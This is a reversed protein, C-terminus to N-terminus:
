PTCGRWPQDVLGHPVRYAAEQLVASETTTTIGGGFAVGEGVAGDFGGGGDTVQMRVFTITALDAIKGLASRAGIIDSRELADLVSAAASVNGGDRLDLIRNEHLVNSTQVDGSLGLKMVGKTLEENAADKAFSLGPNLAGDEYWELREPRGASDSVIRVSLLADGSLSGGVVLASLSANFSPNLTLETTLEHTRLDTERGAGVIASVGGGIALPGRSLSASLEVDASVDSYGAIQAPAISPPPGSFPLLSDGALLIDQLHASLEGLSPYRYRAGHTYSLVGSLDVDSAVKRDNEETTGSATGPNADAGALSFRDGWVGEAGGGIGQRVQADWSGDSSRGVEVEASEGLRISFVTAHAEFGMSRSPTPCDPEPQDSATAVQGVWVNGSGDLGALFASTAVVSALDPPTVLSALAHWSRDAGWAWQQWTGSSTGVLVPQDHPVDVAGHYRGAPPMSAPHLQTWQGRDYEWTDGMAGSAASGGALLLGSGRPEEVLAADPRAPPRSSPSDQHWSTGDWSWTDDLDTGTPGTGGFLVIRGSNFDFAMAAHSRAPPGASALQRWKTGDFAWTESVGAGARHGVLIVQNRAADDALAVDVLPPGDSSQRLGTVSGTLTTLHGSEGRWEVASTTVGGQAVPILQQPPSGDAPLTYLWHTAGGPGDPLAAGVLDHGDPAWTPPGFFFARLRRADSGDANVVVIWGSDDYALRTGDPSWSPQVGSGAIAHDGTGDPHVLHITPPNAGGQAHPAPCASYAIWGGDPSWAADSGCEALPRRQTGDRAVTWLHGDTGTYVVATGDPSWSPSADGSETTLCTRARSDLDVVALGCSGQTLVGYVLTRGDRTVDFEGVDTLPLVNANNGSADEVVVGETSTGGSGTDGQSLVYVIRSPGAGSAVAVLRGRSADWAMASDAGLTGVNLGTRAWGLTSAVPADAAAARPASWPATAVSLALPLAALSGAARRRSRRDPRPVTPSRRGARAGSRDAPSLEGVM